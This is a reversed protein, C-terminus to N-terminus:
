TGGEPTPGSDIGLLKFSLLRYDDSKGTDAPREALRARLTLVCRRGEEFELDEPIRLEVKQRGPGGIEVPVANMGDWTAEIPLPGQALLQPLAELLLGVQRIRAGPHAQLHISSAGGDSWIGDSESDHWCGSLALAVAGGAKAQHVEGLRFILPQPQPPPASTEERIAIQILKLALNRADLSADIDRPALSGTALFSVAVRGDSDVVDDRRWHLVREVVGDAIDRESLALDEPASAGIAVQFQVGARVMWPNPALQVAITLGTVAESAVRLWVTAIEGNTWIGDSEAAHWGGALSQIMPSGVGFELLDGPRVRPPVGSFGVHVRADDRTSRSQHRPPRIAQRLAEVTPGSFLGVQTLRASTSGQGDIDISFPAFRNGTREGLNLAMVNRGPKLLRTIAVEGNVLARVTGATENVVVIGLHRCDDASPPLEFVLESNATSDVTSWENARLSIPKSYAVSAVRLGLLRRDASGEIESPSRPNAIHLEVRVNPGETLVSPPMAAFLVRPVDDVQWRAIMIDNVFVSTDVPIQDASYGYGAVRLALSTGPSVDAAFALAAATGVTWSGAAEPRSWGGLLYPEAATSSASIDKRFSLPQDPLLPRLWTPCVLADEILCSVRNAVAQWSTQQYGALRERKVKLAEANFCYRVLAAYWGVFDLPSIYEVFGPAVEPLSGADSAICFTGKQVSEAVPLGWGEYLSPYVTFLCHRYLWDVTSDNIGQLLLVHRALAADSAILDLTEEGRWGTAGVMVLKPARDGHENVLRRWLELLLRHNKRYDLTSVFLVFRQGELPAVETHQMQESDEFHSLEDGLRFLQVPPIAIGHAVMFDRVDRRTCDSCAILQDALPIFARCNSIFEDAVVKPYWGSHKWQVVDYIAATLHLGFRIKLAAVDRVYRQNRMWASGLILLRDGREVSLCGYPTMESVSAVRGLQDRESCGLVQQRRVQEHEIHLFRQHKSDWYVFQVDIDIVACFASALREEVRSMGTPTGKHHALTTLDVLIRGGRAGESRELRERRRRIASQYADLTARAYCDWSHRRAMLEHLGAARSTHRGEGYAALVQSRLEAPDCPDAYRALEGFYERESSRNSLVLSCGAAAAELAALPAGESWSPLCFVKAGALASALMPGNPDIRGTFVVNAGAWKRVLAAYAADPEHGVFVLPMDLDSLALALLAQNKRSEIRGVCLVYDRVGYMAEFLKPDGRGFLAADVPNYVISVSPHDVGIRALEQREHESLLILHDALSALRRVHAFYGPLPERRSEGATRLAKLETRVALLQGSVQEATSAETLITKVRDAFWPRESLDLFIPSLVSPTDHRAVQRLMTECEKPHWVNLVHVVDVDSPCFGSGAVFEARAGIRNLAAATRPARVSPGGLSGSMEGGHVVVFARTAEARPATETTPVSEAVFLENSLKPGLLKRFLLDHRAAFADWTYAEVSRRLQQKQEVLETLVRRLDAADGLRFGIHPFQPVWGVPSAIIPCGCALAELVCMPGGEILAPVLVFDLSRYFAPMDEEAVPEAPGPWGSGTFHWDIGQVDIVAAVLAEGKRGTHYTRGVVGIRLRPQFRDLDVGPSITELRQVGAARLVSATALSQAVCFDVEGAVQDFKLAASEVQEKHTFMAVEIPSVRQQRCGYTMYYQLEAAGDAFTDYSVYPLRDSIERALRELIWGQDSIRIHVLKRPQPM